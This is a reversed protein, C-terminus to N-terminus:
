GKLLDVLNLIYRKGMSLFSQRKQYVLKGKLTPVKPNLSMVPYTTGWLHETALYLCPGERKEAEWYNPVMIVFSNTNTGVKRKESLVNFELLPM